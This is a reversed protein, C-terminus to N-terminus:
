WHYCGIAETTMEEREWLRSFNLRRGVGQGIEPRTVADNNRNELQWREGRKGEYLSGGRKGRGVSSVSRNRREGRLTEGSWSLNKERTLRLCNRTSLEGNKKERKQNLEGIGCDCVELNSNCDIEKGGV